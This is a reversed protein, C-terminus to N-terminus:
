LDPILHQEGLPGGALTINSASSRNSAGDVQLLQRSGGQMGEAAITAVQLVHLTCVSAM